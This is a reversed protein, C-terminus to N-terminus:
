RAFMTALIQQAAQIVQGRDSQHATLTELLTHAEAYDPKLEISIHFAETAGAVDGQAMRVLGLDAYAEADDPKVRTATELASAAAAWESKGMLGRGLWYYTEGDQRGLQVARELAAVAGPYDHRDLLLAGLDRYADRFHPDRQVALRYEEAAGNMDGRHHLTKGLRYHTEANDNRFEPLARLVDRSRRFDAELDGETPGPSPSGAHQAPHVLGRGAEASMAPSLLFLAAFWPVPVLM